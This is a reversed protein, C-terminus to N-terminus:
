LAEQWSSKLSDFVVGQEPNRVWFTSHLRSSIQVTIDEPIKNCLMVEATDRENRQILDPGSHAEPRRLFNSFLSPFHMDSIRMPLPVTTVSPVSFLNISCPATRTLPLRM